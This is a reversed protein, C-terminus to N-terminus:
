RAPLDGYGMEDLQEEDMGFYHGVEHVVTVRVNEYLDDLSRAAREHPGKFVTIVDPCEGTGYWTGRNDISVGTYLGLLERSSSSTGEDISARQLASPEDEVLFVLHEIDDLFEDPISEIGCEVADDFVEDSVRFM